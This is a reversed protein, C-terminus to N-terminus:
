TEWLVDLTRKYTTCVLSHRRSSRARRAPARAHARRARVVPQLRRAGSGRLGRERHHPVSGGGGRAGHVIPAGAARRPEVAREPRQVPKHFRRSAGSLRAEEGPCTFRSVGVHRTEQM